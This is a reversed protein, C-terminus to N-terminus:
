RSGSRHVVMDIRFVALMPFNELSRDTRSYASFIQFTSGTLTYRPAAKRGASSPSRFHSSVGKFHRKLGIDANCGRRLNYVVANIDPPM